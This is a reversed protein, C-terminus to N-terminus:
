KKIKENKNGKMYKKISSSIQNERIYDQEVEDITKIRSKIIWENLEFRDFYIKGGNPKHHPVKKKHILQYLSSKPIKLYESAGEIDLPEFDRINLLSIIKNLKENLENADLFKM